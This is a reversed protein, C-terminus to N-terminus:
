QTLNFTPFITATSGETILLGGEHVFKYLEQLGDYGLGGRIDDTSDEIGLHPTDDTKKYPIPQNGTVGGYVLSTGTGGAHPFVIVDYKQRLNGQRVLNDAFYTYPVKFKDFAMRVWGEDQTSTWTHIYGIRPLTLDHMPVSPAANTAWAQLGLDRVQSEIAARSANAIVFAGAAFHHGGMDFAQEAIQMKTSKNQFAFTVLTNDTTHDIVITSGTGTITGPAKFDAMALTMPKDFIAKDAIAYSKVNRMVPIDWGTDDYPRPNEAPYWQV